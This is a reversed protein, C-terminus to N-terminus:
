SRRSVQSKSVKHSMVGRPEALLSPLQKVDHLSDFDIMIELLLGHERQNEASQYIAQFRILVLSSFCALQFIVVHYPRWM